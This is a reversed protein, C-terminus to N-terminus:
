VVASSNTWRLEVKKVVWRELGSYTGVDLRGVAFPCGGSGIGKCARWVAAAARERTGSDWQVTSVWRSFMAEYSPEATTKDEM